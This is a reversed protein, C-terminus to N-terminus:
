LRQSVLSNYDDFDRLTSATSTALLSKFQKNGIDMVGIITSFDQDLKQLIVDLTDRNDFNDVQLYQGDDFLIVDTGKALDFEILLARFRGIRAKDVNVKSLLKVL